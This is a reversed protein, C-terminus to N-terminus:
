MKFKSILENMEQAMESLDESSKAIDEMSSTQEEIYASAEETGAANEQAVSSLSQITELVQNKKQEMLRSTTEISTVAQASLQIATSIEVYKGETLDVQASQETIIQRVKKMVDVADKSDKQLNQVMEDITQISLASQEALKRIEDAVVSFGRGQEGARAAEISANLALLNTQEAIESILGSAQSIRISSEDTKLISQYVQTSATATEQTKKSLSGVVELGEKVLDNVKSSSQSLVGVEQKEAVILEGLQILQQAGGSTSDAQETAGKAIMDIAKSVENAADAAQQSTATLEESSAAVLESTSGISTILSRLNEEIKQVIRALDGIEDDRITYKEQINNQLNYDAVEGIHKIIVKIPSTVTRAIVQTLLVSILLSIVALITSNKMKEDLFDEIQLDSESQSMGIFLIGIVNGQSSKIPSYYAMYPKDLINVEGKFDKGAIMSEYAASTQGLMTGTARKGNEDIVNTTIREFDNGKKVFVTAVYGLDENVLDVFETQDALATGDESVLTENTVAVNGYAKEFYNKAVSIGHELNNLTLNTQLHRMNQKSSNYDLVSLTGVIAIIVITFLLSIQTSLKFKGKM